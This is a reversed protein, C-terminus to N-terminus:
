PTVKLGDTFDNAMELAEVTAPELDDQSLEASDILQMVVSYAQSMLNRYADSLRRMGDPDVPLDGIPTRMRAAPSKIFANIAFLANALQREAERRREVETNNAALLEAIRADLRAKERELDEIVARDHAEFDM